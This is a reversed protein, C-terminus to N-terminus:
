DLWHKVWCLMHGDLGHAAPKEVLISHPVTDFAKSFDLYVVDIAKGEDVLCTVKDYFSILNTLCSRGNMFGHQSPRIGQNVKLQDVIYGSIIWEMAKGPVSTLSIPRYSGPDDKQGKKFIPTVNALRQLLFAEDVPEGQDPPRYWVGVVLHGKSSRDKIKVWLSEVQDHSNSLCLEKCDTWKRVCIAVVGGRRGQRDRRFIRYGEILTNWDHSKDWWTEMIAILDYKGLQVVTELEELKNGM